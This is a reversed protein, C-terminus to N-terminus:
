KLLLPHIISLKIYTNKCLPQIFYLFYTTVSFYVFFFKSPSIRISKPKRSFAPLRDFTRNVPTRLWNVLEVRSERRKGGDLSVM